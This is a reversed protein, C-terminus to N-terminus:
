GGPTLAPKAFYSSIEQMIRYQYRAKGTQEAKQFGELPFPPLCISSQSILTKSKRTFMRATFPEDVDRM